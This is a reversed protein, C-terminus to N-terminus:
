LTKRLFKEQDSFDKNVQLKAECYPIFDLLLYYQDPTQWSSGELISDYLTKFMGTDEDIFTGDILTDVVKKIRANDNYIEKPNYSDEIKEIDEVRAGFYLQKRGQKNM